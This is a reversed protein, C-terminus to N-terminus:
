IAADRGQLHDLQRGQVQVVAEGLTRGGQRGAHNAGAPWAHMRSDSRHRTDTHTGHRRHMASPTASCGQLSGQSGRGGRGGCALAGRQVKAGGHKADQQAAGGGLQGEEEEAAGQRPAGVRHLGQRLVVYVIHGGVQAGHRGGRHHAQPRRGPPGVGRAGHGDREDDQRAPGGDRVRLHTGAPPVTPRPAPAQPPSPPAAPPPWRARRPGRMAPQM